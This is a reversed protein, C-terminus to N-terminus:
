RPKYHDRLDRVRDHGAKVIAYQDNLVSTMASGATKKLVDEYAHKIFDEGREAECLIAYADGGNLLGRLKIWGQHLSGLWTGDLRPREDNFTVRLQLAAALDRRQTALENFLSALNADEIQKASEAFGSASDLNAQILDQIAEITESDLNLKTETSM